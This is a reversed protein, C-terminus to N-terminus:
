RGALAFVRAAEAADYRHRVDVDTYTTTSVDGSAETVVLRELIVDHGSAHVSRVLRALAGRARLELEFRGDPQATVQVDFRTRLSRADGALLDVFTSVLQGVVPQSALDFREVHGAETMVLADGVVVISAPSPSTVYRALRRPPAFHVTGESVLPVALLAITKQERFHAQMGPLRAFRQMVEDFTAVHQQSRAAPALTCVFLLAAAAVLARRM